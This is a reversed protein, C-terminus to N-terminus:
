ITMFPKTEQEHRIKSSGKVSEVTRCAITLTHTWIIKHSHRCTHQNFKYFSMQIIWTFSVFPHISFLPLYKKLLVILSKHYLYIVNPIVTAFFLFILFIWQCSLFILAFIFFFAYWCSLGIRIKARTREQEAWLQFLISWSVFIIFANLTVFIYFLKVHELM